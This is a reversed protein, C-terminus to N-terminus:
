GIKSGQLYANREKSISKISMKIANAYKFAVILVRAVTRSGLDRLAVPKLAVNKM